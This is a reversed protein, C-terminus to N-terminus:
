IKAQIASLQAQILDVIERIRAEEEISISSDTAANVHIILRSAKEGGNHIHINLGVSGEKAAKAEAYRHEIKETVALLELRKIKNEITKNYRIQEEALEKLSNVSFEVINTHLDANTEAWLVDGPLNSIAGNYDISLRSYPDLSLKIGSYNQKVPRITDIKKFAEAIKEKKLQIRLRELEKTIESM